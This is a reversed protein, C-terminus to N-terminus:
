GAAPREGPRPKRLRAPAVISEPQRGQAGAEDTAGDYGVRDARDGLAILLDRVRVQEASIVDDGGSRDVEIPDGVVVSVRSFPLPFYSQDWLWGLRVSPVFAAGVPILPVGTKRALFVAGAKVQQHPGKPGDVSITVVRGNGLHKKLKLLAAAGGRTNSGLEADAGMVQVFHSELRGLDALSTLIVMPVTMVYELLAFQRGHFSVFIFPKGSLRLARAAPTEIWTCRCTALTLRLWWGVVWGAFPVLWPFLLKKSPSRLAKTARRLRRLLGVKEFKEDAVAGRPADPTRGTM